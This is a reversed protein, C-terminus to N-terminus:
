LDGGGGRDKCCRDSSVSSVGIFLPCYERVFRRPKLLLSLMGSGALAISGLPLGRNGGRVDLEDMRCLLTELMFVLMFVLSGIWLAPRGALAGGGVPGSGGGGLLANGVGGAVPESLAPKAGDGLRFRHHSTNSLLCAYPLFMVFYQM